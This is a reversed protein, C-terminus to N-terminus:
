EELTPVVDMWSFSSPFATPPTRSAWPCSLLLPFPPQGLQCWRECVSSLFLLFSFLGCCGFSVRDPEPPMTTTGAAPERRLQIEQNTNLHFHKLLHWRHTWSCGRAWPPSPRGGGWDLTRFPSERLFPLAWACLLRVWWASPEWWAGTFALLAWTGAGLDLATARVLSSSAPLVGVPPNSPMPLLHLDQELSVYFKNRTTFLIFALVGTEEM